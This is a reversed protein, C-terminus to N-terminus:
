FPLYSAVELLDLQVVSYHLTIEPSYESYGAIMPAAIVCGINWYYNM